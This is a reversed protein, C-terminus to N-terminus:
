CSVGFMYHKQTGDTKDLFPLRYLKSTCGRPLIYKVALAEADKKAIPKTAKLVIYYPNRFPVVYSDLTIENGSVQMVVHNEEVLMMNDTAFKSREYINANANQSVCGALFVSVFFGTVASVVVSCFGLFLGFFNVKKM